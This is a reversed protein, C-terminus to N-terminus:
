AKWSNVYETYPKGPDCFVNHKPRRQEEPPLQMYDGYVHKLCEDYGSPVNFLEGEFELKVIQSFWERRYIQKMKPNHTFDAVYESKKDKCLMSLKEYIRALLSCNLPLLKYISLNIKQLVNQETYYPHKKMFYVNWLVRLTKVLIKQKLKLGDVSDLPFIDIYIGQHMNKFAYGAQEIFTTNSDRVKAILYCYGRDTTRHQLFLHSPLEKKAIELFRKYDERPMVIDVDDDWPIFGKHRVAGILTGYYLFYRLGHKECISAVERLIKLEVKQVERIVKDSESM